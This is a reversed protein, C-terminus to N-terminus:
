DASDRFNDSMAKRVQAMGASRDREYEMVGLSIIVNLARRICKIRNEEADKGLMLVLFQEVAEHSDIIAM